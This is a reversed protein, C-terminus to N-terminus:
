TPAHLVDPGVVSVTRQDELDIEPSVNTKEIVSTNHGLIHDTHFWSPRESSKTARQVEKKSSPHVLSIGIALFTRLFQFKSCGRHSSPVSYVDLSHVKRWMSSIWIYSGVIPTSISVSKLTWTNVMGDLPTHCNPFLPNSRPERHCKMQDTVLADCTKKISSFLLLGSIRRTRSSVELDSIIMLHCASFLSFFLHCRSWAPPSM